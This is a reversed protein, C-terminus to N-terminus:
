AQILMYCAIATNNGFTADEVVPWHQCAAVDISDYGVGCNAEVRLKCPQSLAEENVRLCGSAGM